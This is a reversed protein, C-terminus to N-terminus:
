CEIFGKLAVIFGDLDEWPIMHGVQDMKRVEIAPNLKRIEVIDEDLVVGGKGAVVLLTPAKIAPFDSHIEEETFGRYSDAIATEDCTHLWEARTRMQEESWKPYRKKMAEFDINGLKAERVADLFFALTQVYARRGPGSVPPDVLILRSLAGGHWHALRAGIRAGLSHGIVSCRGLKLAVAFAAVDEAYTDLSYSLGPGSESLGRGRVDLVYTDYARGFRESVFDWTAASNSIGPIVILPEGRGGYRLYHQRIGNARVNAGYLRTRGPINSM